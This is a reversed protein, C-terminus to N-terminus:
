ISTIDDILELKSDSFHFCEDLSKAKISEIPIQFSPSGEIDIVISVPKSFDNFIEDEFRVAALVAFLGSSSIKKNFSSINNTISTALSEPCIALTRQSNTMENILNHGQSLLQDELSPPYIGELAEKRTKFVGLIDGDNGRVEFIPKNNYDIEIIYNEDRTKIFSKNNNSPNNSKADNLITM